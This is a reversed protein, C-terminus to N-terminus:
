FHSVGTLAIHYDPLPCLLGPLIVAAGQSLQARHLWGLVNGWGPPFLSVTLSVCLEKVFGCLGALQHGGAKRSSCLALFVPAQGDKVQFDSVVAGHSGNGM